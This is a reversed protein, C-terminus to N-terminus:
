IVHLWDKIPDTVATNVFCSKCVNNNLKLVFKCLSNLQLVNNLKLAYKCVNNNLQLVFKGLSNLQLM